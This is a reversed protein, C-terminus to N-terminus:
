IIEIIAYNCTTNLMQEYDEQVAALVVANIKCTKIILWMSKSTKVWRPTRQIKCPLLILQMSKCTKVLLSMMRRLMRGQTNGRARQEQQQPFLGNQPLPM